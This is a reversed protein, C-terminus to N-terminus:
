KILRYSISKLNTPSKRIIKCIDGSRYNYYKAIPDTILMIPLMLKNEITYEEMLNHIEDNNLKIFIPNLNHETIDIILERSSFFQINIHKFKTDNCVRSVANSVKSGLVFLICDLKEENNNELLENLHERVATPKVKSSFMFIIKTLLENHNICCEFERNKFSMRIINDSFEEVDYERKRLMKM